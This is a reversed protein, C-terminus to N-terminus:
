RGLVAPAWTGARAQAFQTFRPIRIQGIATTARQAPRPIQGVGARDAASLLAAGGAAPVMCNKPTTAFGSTRGRRRLSGAAGIGGHHALPGPFSIRRKGRDTAPRGPRPIGFQHGADAWLGAAGHLADSLLREWIHRSLDNAVADRGRIQRALLHPVAM